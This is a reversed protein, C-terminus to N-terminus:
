VEQMECLIMYQQFDKSDWDFATKRSVGVLDPLRTSISIFASKRYETDIRSKMEEMTFPIYNKDPYKEELLYILNDELNFYIMYKNLLHIPWQIAIHSKIDVDDFIRYSVSSTDAKKGSSGTRRYVKNYKIREFKSSQLSNYNVDGNDLVRQIFKDASFGNDEFASYALAKSYSYEIFERVLSFDLDAVSKM